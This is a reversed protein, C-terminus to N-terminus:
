RACALDPFLEATKGGVDPRELRLWFRRGGDTTRQGRLGGRRGSQALIQALAAEAEDAGCCDVGEHLRHTQDVVVVGMAVAAADALGLALLQLPGGLGSQLSPAAM